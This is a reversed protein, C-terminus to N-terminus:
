DSLPLEDDKGRVIRRATRIVRAEGGDFRYAHCRPCVNARVAVVAECGECVKWSSPDREIRALRQRKSRRDVPIEPDPTM